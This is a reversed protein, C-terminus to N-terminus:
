PRKTLPALIGAISLLVLLLGDQPGIRIIGCDGRWIGARTLIKTASFATDSLLVPVLSLLRDTAPFPACPAPTSM